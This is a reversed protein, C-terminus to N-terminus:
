EEAPLVILTCTQYVPLDLYSNVIFTPNETGWEGTLTYIGPKFYYPPFQRYFQLWEVREGREGPYVVHNRFLRVEEGNIYFKFYNGGMTSTYFHGYQEKLDKHYAPYRNPAYWGHSIWCPEDEHITFVNGERIFLRLGEGEWLSPAAAVSLVLSFVLLVVGICLKCNSIM